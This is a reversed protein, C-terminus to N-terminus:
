MNLDTWKVQEVLQRFQRVHGEFGNFVELPGDDFEALKEALTESIAGFDLTKCALRFESGVRRISITLVALWPCSPPLLDAGAQSAMVKVLDAALASMCPQGARSQNEVSAILSTLLRPLLPDDMGLERVALLCYPDGTSEHHFVLNLRDSM